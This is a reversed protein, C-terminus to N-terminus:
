PDVPRRRVVVEEVVPRREIVTEQVGDDDLDTDARVRRVEEGRHHEEHPHDHVEADHRHHDGHTHGFREDEDYRVDRSTGAWAGRNRDREDADMRDRARVDYRGDLDGSDVLVNRGGRDIQVSRIPVEAHVGGDHLEVEIMVVEGRDPDVLLDEVEGLARGGITRVDWGRIDPEGKAITFGDLDDMPVLRRRREPDPGIGAKDRELRNDRAM